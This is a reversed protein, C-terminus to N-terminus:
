PVWCSFRKYGLTFRDDEKRNSVRELLASLGIAVADGADHVADALVASSNFLAGFVFELLAFSANLIFALLTSKKANM